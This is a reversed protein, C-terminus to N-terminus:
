HLFQVTQGLGRLFSFKSNWFCTEMEKGTRELGLESELARFSLSFSFFLDM